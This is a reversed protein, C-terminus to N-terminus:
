LPANDTMLFKDLQDAIAQGKIAKRKIYQIDFELLIMMWKALQRTLM